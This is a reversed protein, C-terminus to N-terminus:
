WRIFRSIDTMYLADKLQEKRYNCGPTQETQAAKIQLKESCTLAKHFNNEKM